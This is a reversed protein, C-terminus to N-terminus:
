RCVTCQTGLQLGGCVPSARWARLWSPSSCGVYEFRTTRLRHGGARGSLAVGDSRLGACWEHRRGCVRFGHRVDLVDRHRGVRVLEEPDLVLELDVEPRPLQGLEVCPGDAVRVDGDVELAIALYTAQKHRICCASASASVGLLPM